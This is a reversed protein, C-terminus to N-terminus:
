TGALRSLVPRMTERTRGGLAILSFGNVAFVSCTLEVRDRLPATLAALAEATTAFGDPLPYNEPLALVDFGDPEASRAYTAWGGFQPVRPATM